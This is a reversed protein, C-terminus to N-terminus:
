LDVQIRYIFVKCFGISQLNCFTLKQLHIVTTIPSFPIFVNFAPFHSFFISHRDRYNYVFCSFFQQTEVVWDSLSDTNIYYNSYHFIKMESRQIKRNPWQYHSIIWLINPCHIYTNCGSINRFCKIVDAISVPFM